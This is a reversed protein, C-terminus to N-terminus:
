SSGIYLDTRASDIAGGGYLATNSDFTSDSISASNADYLSIAGGRRGSNGSVTSDTIDIAVNYGAFIAGGNQNSSNNTLTSNEVYLTVGSSLFIGGGRDGSSNGSVTSNYLSVITNNSDNNARIAGGYYGATNNSITSGNINLQTDYSSYYFSQDDVFVAGGSNSANCGTVVCNNLTVTRSFGVFVGGGDTANGDGITLGSITVPRREYSGPMFYLVYPNGYYDYGYVPPGQVYFAPATIVRSNGGGRIALTAADAGTITTEDTISLGSYPDLTISGTVAPAFDISNAGATNNSAIIAERLSIGDVGPTAILNAVSSTDGNVVDTNNSVQVDAAQSKRATGMLVAGVLATMSMWRLFGGKSKNTSTDTSTGSSLM